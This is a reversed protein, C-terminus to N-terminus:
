KSSATFYVNHDILDKMPMSLTKENQGVVPSPKKTSDKHVVYWSYFLETGDPDV